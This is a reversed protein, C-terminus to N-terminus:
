GVARKMRMQELLDDVRAMAADHPLKPRKSDIAEQVKARFWQDYSAAEAETHFESIIPDLTATNM